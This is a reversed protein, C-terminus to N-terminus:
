AIVAAFKDQDVAKYFANNTESIGAAAWPDIQARTVPAHITPGAADSYDAGGFAGFDSSERHALVLGHVAASASTADARLSPSFRGDGAVADYVAIAPRDAHWPMDPTSQPFRVMGDIARVDDRLAGRVGSTKAERVAADNFRKIAGEARQIKAPDLDLVDFAAAPRMSGFMTGYKTQMVDRVVARAMAAPDGAHAAIDHAVSSPVGPALMTEPSAALYRVGAQSLADAFGMTDMLCQNAVVGDVNRGADEPHERAHLAIGDSLAKAIDPMPMCSGDHTQLGGGDGGGHDVLDIWTQKAGSAEATDLTRAVFGALNREDSMDRAKSQAVHSATGDAITFDVTHLKDGHRATTDEVTFQIRSDARSTKVAQDIVASQVRDLNNDGDRYIGFELVRRTPSSTIPQLM